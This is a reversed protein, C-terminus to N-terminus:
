FSKARMYLTREIHKWVKKTHVSKNITCAHSVQRRRLLRRKSCRVQQITGVVELLGWPLRRLQRMVVAELNKRASLSYGYTVPLLTQVIPLSLFQRSAWRPWISQSFSPTTSQYMTRTSIGSVRNPSHQGRGASDRGSSGQFRLMTNRTSQRDLPFGTCTSWVLASLFFFRDDFTQPDIQETQGEQTQSLWCAEVPFDTEQTQTMDISGAKMVPWWLM